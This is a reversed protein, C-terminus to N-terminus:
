GTASTPRPTENLLQLRAGVPCNVFSGRTLKEYHLKGTSRQQALDLLVVGVAPAIKERWVLLYLEDALRHYRCEDVEAADKGPGSLCHWCYLWENLYIHEYVDTGYDCLLRKGVLDTTTPPAPVGRPGGVGLHEERVRVASLDNTDVIREYLDPRARGPQPLHHNLVTAADTNRDLVVSTSTRPDDPALWDLFFVGPRLETATCRSQRAAEGTRQWRIRGHHAFELQLVPERDDFLEIREGTLAETEAHRNEDMGTDCSDLTLFLEERDAPTM